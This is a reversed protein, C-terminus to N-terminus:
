QRELQWAAFCRIHVHYTDRAPADQGRIFEIELELGDPALPQGCIVCAEGLGPGGWTGDPPRNPLKGTRIAERAKERLSSEASM